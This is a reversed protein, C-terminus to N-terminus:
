QEQEMKEIWGHANSALKDLLTTVRGQGPIELDPDLEALPLLVFNRESIRPHPVVLGEKDIVQSGLLLLDLDLIRPGWRSGSRVRGRETEIRQLAALLEAASLRTTFAIVANVYDPQDAPGLPASRYLSSALANDIDPLQSIANIAWRVQKAPDGLNSGIGVFAPLGKSKTASM